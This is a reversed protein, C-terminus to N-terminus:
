MTVGETAHVFYDLDTEFQGEDKLIVIKRMEPLFRPTGYSALGMVKFEDGYKPFGLFQTVATYFIGLSHPYTITDLIELKKGRGVASMSSCFDGFGDISLCAGEDYPSCFFASAIHARHHEVHHIEGKFGGDIERLRESLDHVKKINQLRATIKDLGQRKRLAFLAKKLFHASPDRSIAVHKIDDLASGSDRLVERIASQPFGAWHKIRNLREEEVGCVFAGGRLVAASSDGHFANIGLVNM